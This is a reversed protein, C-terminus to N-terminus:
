KEVNVLFTTTMGQWQATVFTSGAGVPIIRNCVIRVINKDYDKYIIKGFERSTNFSEDVKCIKVAKGFGGLKLNYVHDEDSIGIYKQVIPAKTLVVDNKSNENLSDSFNPEDVLSISIEHMRTAWVGWSPGYAYAIYKKDSLRIHGDPRSSIGSNHCYYSIHTNM